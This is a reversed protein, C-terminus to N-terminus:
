LRKEDKGYYNPDYNEFNLHVFFGGETEEKGGDWPFKEEVWGDCIWCADRIGEEYREERVTRSVCDM